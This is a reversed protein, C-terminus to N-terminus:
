HVTSSSYLNSLATLANGTPLRDVTTRGLINPNTDAFETKLGVKIQAACEPRAFITQEEAATRIDEIRATGKPIAPSDGHNNGLKEIQADAGHAEYHESGDDKANGKLCIAMSITGEIASRCRNM